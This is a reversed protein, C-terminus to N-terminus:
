NSNNRLIHIALAWRAVLIKIGIVTNWTIKITAVGETFLAQYLYLLLSEGDTRDASTRNGFWELGLFQGLVENSQVISLPLLLEELLGVKAWEVWFLQHLMEAVSAHFQNTYVANHVVTSMTKNSFFFTYIYQFLIALVYHPLHVLTTGLRLLQNFIPILQELGHLHPSDFVQLHYIGLKLREKILDLSFPSLDFQSIVIAKLNFFLSNISLQLIELLM